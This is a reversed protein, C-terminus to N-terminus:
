IVFPNFIQLFLVFKCLIIPTNYSGSSKQKNQQQLEIKKIEWLKQLEHKIDDTKLIGSKIVNSREQKWFEIEDNVTLTIPVFKTLNGKQKKNEEQKKNGEFRILTKRKAADSGVVALGKELLCKDLFSISM